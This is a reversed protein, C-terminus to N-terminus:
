PCKPPEPNLYKRAEDCADTLPDGEWQPDMARMAGSFDKEAALIATLHGELVANRVKLACAENWTKQLYHIAEAKDGEEAIANIFAAPVHPSEATSPQSRATM